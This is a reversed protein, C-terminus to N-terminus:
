KMQLEKGFLNIVYATQSTGPTGLPTPPTRLAPNNVPTVVNDPGPLGTPVGGADVTGLSPNQNDAWPVVPVLSCDTTLAQTVLYSMWTGRSANSQSLAAGAASRFADGGPFNPNSTAMSPEMAIFGGGRDLINKDLKMLSTGSRSVDITANFINAPNLPIVEMRLFIAPGPGDTHFIQTTYCSCVFFGLNVFGSLARGAPNAPLPIAVGRVTFRDIAVNAAMVILEQLTADPKGYVKVECNARRSPVLAAAVDSLSPGARSGILNEAIFKGVFGGLFAVSKLYDAATSMARVMGTINKFPFEVGVTATGHIKVAKSQYTLNLYAQRDEVRYHIERGDPTANVVVRKRIFGPPVALTFNQRFADATTGRAILLDPRMTAVGTTVRTTLYQEDTMSTVSWRNSVVYNVCDTICFRIRYSIIAAKDGHISIVRCEEPIPGNEPDCMLRVNRKIGTVPDEVSYVGPVEWVRDPGIDVRLQQRPELLTQRLRRLSTGLTDVPLSRTGIPLPAPPGGPIPPPLPVAPDVNPSDTLAQPEFDGSRFGGGALSTQSGTSFPSWVCILSITVRDYLRDTGSQDYVAQMAVGSTREIKLDINNYSLHM